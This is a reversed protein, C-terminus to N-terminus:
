FILTSSFSKYEQQSYIHFEIVTKIIPIASIGHTKTRNYNEYPRSNSEDKNLSTINCAPFLKVVMSKYHIHSYNFCMLSRLKGSCIM